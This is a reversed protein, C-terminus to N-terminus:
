NSGPSSYELARRGSPGENHRCNARVAVVEHSADGLQLWKSSGLELESKWGRGM